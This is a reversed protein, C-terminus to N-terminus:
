APEVGGLLDLGAEAVLGEADDEVAVGGLLLLGLPISLNEPSATRASVLGL